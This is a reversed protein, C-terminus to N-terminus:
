SMQAFRSRLKGRGVRDGLTKTASARRRVALSNSSAHRGAWPLSNCGAHYRRFGNYTQADVKGDVIQYLKRADDQASASGEDALSGALVVVLALWPRM